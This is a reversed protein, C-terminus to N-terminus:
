VTSKRKCVPTPYFWYARNDRYSYVCVSFSRGHLSYGRNCYYSIRKGVPYSYGDGGSYGGYIPQTPPNCQRYFTASAVAVTVAVVLLAGLIQMIAGTFHYKAFRSKSKHM